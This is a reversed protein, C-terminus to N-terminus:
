NSSDAGRSYKMKFETVRGDQRESASYLVGKNMIFSVDPMYHDGNPSLLLKNRKMSWTGSRTHNFFACDGGEYKYVYSSDTMLLITEKWLYPSEGRIAWYWRKLVPKTKAKHEYHQFITPKAAQGFLYISSLPLLIAILITKMYTPQGLRFTACFKRQSEEVASSLLAMSM